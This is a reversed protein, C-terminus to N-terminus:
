ATIQLIKWGVNPMTSDPKFGLIEDQVILHPRALREIVIDQLERSIHRNDIALDIFFPRGVKTFDLVTGEVRQVILKM